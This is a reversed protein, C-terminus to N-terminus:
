DMGFIRRYFALTRAELLAKGEGYFTHPMDEYYYCAIIKGLEALLDCTARSWRLPVVEDERGHHLSIEAQIDAYYYVPSIEALYEAPVALEELGMEGDLWDYIAAYNQAEDGSMPGYLVAGLVQPDVTLVRTAIGGGMSHGWLAIRAADANALLGPQGAQERVLAILNLVDIAMGVRFLNDGQDSPPYGRLNPHLVLMGARALSDAYPTTYDITQYINPDIYGHLAIVVPFPGEGAPLNAFGSIELSDSDYVIEYRSFYTNEALRATIRLSGGGYSRARLAPITYARYPDATPTATGTPSPQPQTPNPSPLAAITAPAASPVHPTSSAPRGVAAPPHASSATTAELGLNASAQPSSNTALPADSSNRCASGALVMLALLFVTLGDNLGRRTQGPRAAQRLATM